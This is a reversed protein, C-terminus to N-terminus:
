PTAGTSTVTVNATQIRAVTRSDIAEVAFSAGGDITISTVRLVGPVAHAWAAIQSGAADLGPVYALAGAAVLAATLAADGAYALTVVDVAIVIVLDQIAPRTFWITHAQGETDTVSVSTTGYTGIGGAKSALIQTAVALDDATTPALPGFVIAELAHPPISDVTADTDNEVVTVSEIEAINRLLDAAIGSPSTSGPNTVEAERRLRLAADSEVDSGPAGETNSTISNWGALAGSIVLTNSPCSIPGTTLADFVASVDAAAGGSNVVPAVNAFTDAPRGDVMAVLSGIAYTGPDVNVVVTTRTASAPERTTGTIASVRDLSEGTASDPDIAMYLAIMTEEILRLARSVIANHQGHPSSASVDLRDSIDARQRAELDAKIEAQTKSVLGTSTLEAM